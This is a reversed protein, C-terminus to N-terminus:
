GRNMYKDLLISEQCYTEYEDRPLENVHQYIHYLEHLMCPIFDYQLNTDIQILFENDSEKICWGEVGEGSLDREDVTIFVKHDSLYESMFWQCVSWATERTGETVEIYHM